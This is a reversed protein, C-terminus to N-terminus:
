RRGFASALLALGNAMHGLSRPDKIEPFTPLISNSATRVLKVVTKTGVYDNKATFGNPDTLVIGRDLWQAKTFASSSITIDEFGLLADLSDLWTGVPLAWDVVFSYPVLEWAILLPNTIGLSALSMILDNGPLADIRVFAGCESRAECIGAEIGTFTKRWQMQRTVQARSTVRWTERPSRSLADCAGYVDSILPKWGYQMELWKNPVNSGRPERHSNAIGLDRMAARVRGRKLNNFSKAMRRSTDGLLRATANREAFAVGLDVDKQKMKVRADILARNPLSSDTIALEDVTTNFHENSQFTAAGVCGTSISGVSPNLGWIWSCVGQARRYNRYFLQYGLPDFWGTPKHRSVGSTTEEAHFGDASVGSALTAGSPSKTIWPSPINIVFPPRSM